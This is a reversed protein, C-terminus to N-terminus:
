STPVTVAPSSVTSKSVSTTVSAAPSEIVNGQERGCRIEFREACTVAMAVQSITFGYGSSSIPPCAATTRARRCRRRGARSRWRRRACRAARSSAARGPSGRPAGRLMARALTGGSVVGAIVAQGPPGSGPETLVLAIAESFERFADSRFAAAQELDAAAVLIGPPQADGALTGGPAVAAAAQDGRVLVVWRDAPATVTVEGAPGTGSPAVQFPVIEFPEPGLDRLTAM